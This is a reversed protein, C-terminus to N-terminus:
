ASEQPQSLGPVRPQQAALSCSQPPPDPLVQFALPPAASVRPATPAGPHSQTPTLTPAPIPSFPQYSQSDPGTGKSTEVTLTIVKFQFIQQLLLPSFVQGLTVTEM